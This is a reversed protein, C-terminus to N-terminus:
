SSNTQVEDGELFSTSAVCVLYCSVSMLGTQRSSAPLSVHLVTADIVHCVSPHSVDESFFLYLSLCSSLLLRSVCLRDPFPFFFWYASYESFDKYPELFSGEAASCVWVSWSWRGAREVWSHEGGEDGKSGRGRM